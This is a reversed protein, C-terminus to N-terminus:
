IKNLINLGVKIIHSIGLLDISIQAQQKHRDIKKISSEKGLLSGETIIIKDGELFGYSAKICHDIGWLREYYFRESSSVALNQVSGNNLLRYITKSRKILGLL